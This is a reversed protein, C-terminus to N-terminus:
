CATCAQVLSLTCRELYMCPLLIFIVRHRKCRQSPPQQPLLPTCAPSACFSKSLHWQAQTHLPRALAARYPAQMVPIALLSTLPCCSCAGFISHDSPIHFSILQIAAQYFYAPTSMNNNLCGVNGGADDLLIATTSLAHM